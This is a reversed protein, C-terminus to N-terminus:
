AQERTAQERVKGTSYEEGSAQEQRKWHQVTNKGL